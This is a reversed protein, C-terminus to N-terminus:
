LNGGTSGFGGAGRETESVTGQWEISHTFVPFFVIQAVRVGREIHIRESSNNIVLVKIEGRYDSDILGAGIDIGKVSLGSRPMIRAAVSDAFETSIGTSVLGRSGCDISIDDSAFLDFGAAGDSGRIPTIAVDHMKIFKIM